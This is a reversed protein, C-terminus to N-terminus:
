SCGALCGALPSSVGSLPDEEERVSGDKICGVGFSVESRILTQPSTRPRARKCPPWAPPLSSCSHARSHGVKIDIPTCNQRPSRWEFTWRRPQEQLFFRRERRQDRSTLALREHPTLRNGRTRTMSRFRRLVQQEGAVVRSWKRRRRLRQRSNRSRTAASTFTRASAPAGALTGRCVFVFACVSKAAPRPVGACLKASAGSYRRRRKEM